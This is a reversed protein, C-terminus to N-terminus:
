KLTPLRHIIMFSYIIYPQILTFQKLTYHTFYFTFVKLLVEHESQRLVMELFAKDMWSPTVLEDKLYDEESSM